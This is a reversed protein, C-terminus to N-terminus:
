TAEVTVPVAEAAFVEVDNVLLRLRIPTAAKPGDFQGLYVTKTKRGASTRTLGWFALEEGSSTALTLTAREPGADPSKNPEPGEILVYLRTGTPVCVLLAYEDSSAAQPVWMM